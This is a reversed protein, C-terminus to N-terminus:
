TVAGTLYDLAVRLDGRQTAAGIVGIAIALAYPFRERRVQQAREYAQHVRVPWSIGAPAVAAATAEFAVYALALAGGAILTYLGAILTWKPGLLTGLAALFKVDGAGTARLAYLPMLVALGVMMGLAAQA